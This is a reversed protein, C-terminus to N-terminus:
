ATRLSEAPEEAPAKRYWKRSRTQTLDIGGLLLALEEHSLVIKKAASDRAPWRFRGGDLRKACVWLGSGDYVLLKLRNRRANAFLFVHGSEPDCGLQDRVLGHLGNFNKRMDTAGAAVYIRTAPGFGFVAKCRTWYRSCASCPRRMSNVVWKLAVGVARSSWWVVMAGTPGDQVKRMPCFWKWPFCRVLAREHGIRSGSGISISAAVSLGHQQCFGDRTLGSAEYESILKEVEVRGRRKRVSVAESM